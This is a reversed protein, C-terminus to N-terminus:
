SPCPHPTMRRVGGRDTALWIVPPAIQERTSSGFQPAESNARLYASSMARIVDYAATVQAAADAPVQRM